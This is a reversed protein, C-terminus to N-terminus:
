CWISRLEITTPSEFWVYPSNSSRVLGVEGHLGGRDHLMAAAERLIEDARTRHYAIRGIDENHRQRVWACCREILVDETGLPLDLATATTISAAAGSLYEVEYTGAVTSVSDAVANLRTEHEIPYYVGNDLRRVVVVREFDTMTSKLISTGTVSIASLKQTCLDPAHICLWRRVRRYEDSVLALYQTASIQDDTDHLTGARIKTIADSVLM